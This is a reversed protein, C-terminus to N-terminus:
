SKTARILINRPSIKFDFVEGVQVKSNEELKKARHFVILKEISRAFCGRLFGLNILRNIIKQTDNNKFFSNLPLSSTLNLRRLQEKAYHHFDKQYIDKTSSLLTTTKKTNFNNKLFVEFAYRFKKVQIRAELDKLSAHSARIALTRMHNNIPFQENFDHTCKHFCCGINSFSKAKKEKKYFDLVHDSLDGCNHLAILSHAEKLDLHMDKKIEFKKSKLQTRRKAKELLQNDKDLCVSVQNYHSSFSESLHGVGGAFDISPYQSDLHPLLHTLEHQKKKSMQFTKNLQIPKVELKPLISLEQFKHHFFQLNNTLSLKEFNIFKLIKDNDFSELEKVYSEIEDSYIFPYNNLIETGWLKKYPILTNQIHQIASQYVKFTIYPICSIKDFIWFDFDNFPM